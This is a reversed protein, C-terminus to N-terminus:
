VAEDTAAPAMCYRSPGDAAKERTIIFGQQRLRTLAARTTHPLWGTSATLDDISAGRPRQLLAILLGRKGVTPTLTIPRPRALPEPSPPEAAATVDPDLGIAALGAATIVYPLLEPGQPRGFAPPEPPTLVLAILGRRQLAAVVKPGAAGKLRDPLTLRGDDRQSALSLLLSQSDTLTIPPM